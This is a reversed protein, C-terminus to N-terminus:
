IKICNHTCMNGRENLMFKQRSEHKQQTMESPFPVIRNRNNDVFKQRIHLLMLLGQRLLLSFLSFIFLKMAYTKKRDLLSHLYSIFM